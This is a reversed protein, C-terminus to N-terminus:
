EKVARINHGYCRYGPNWDDLFRNYDFDVNYPNNNTSM